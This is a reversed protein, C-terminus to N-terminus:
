SKRKSGKAVTKFRFAVDFGIYNSSTNISGQYLQNNMNITMISKATTQLGINTRVGLLVDLKENVSREYGIGASIITLLRSNHPYVVSFDPTGSGVGSGQNPDNAYLNNANNDPNRRSSGVRQSHHVRFTPGAFLRIDSAKAAIKYVANFTGSNYLYNHFRSMNMEGPGSTIGFATLPAKLNYSWNSGGFDTGASLGWRKNLMITYDIGAEIATSTGTSINAPSNNFVKPLANLNPTIRIGVYSQAFLQGCPYLFLCLLAAMCLQKRRMRALVVNLAKNM